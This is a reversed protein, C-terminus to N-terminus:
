NIGFYILLQSPGTGSTTLCVDNGPPASFHAFEVHDVLVGNIGLAFAPTIAVTGTGCNSGTGTSLQMSGAAAGTNYAFGCLSITAGNAAIIRTLAVAGQSVQVTKNCVLPAAGVSQGRATNACTLAALAVIAIVAQRCM